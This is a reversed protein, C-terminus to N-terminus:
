SNNQLESEVVAFAADMASTNGANSHGPTFAPTPQQVKSPATKILKNESVISAVFDKFNVPANNEFYQMDSETKLVIENTDPLYDVKLKKEALKKNVLSATTQTLVDKPLDLGYDFAAYIKDMEIGKLRDHWQRNVGDIEAKKEDVVAKLQSHLKAIEDELEKKDGTKATAKKAELEKVKALLKSYRAFTKKEAKIEEIAAPDLSYESINREIDSDLANHFMAYFHDRVRESNKASDITMVGDLASAWTDPVNATALDKIQQLKIINEDDLKAGILPALKNLFEGVLM